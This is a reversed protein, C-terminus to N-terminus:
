RTSVLYRVGSPRRFTHAFWRRGPAEYGKDLLEWGDQVLRSTLADVAAWCAPDDACCNLTKVEVSRDLVDSAESDVVRVQFRGARRGWLLKRTQQWEIECASWTVEGAVPGGAAASSCVAAM